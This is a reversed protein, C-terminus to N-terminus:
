KEMKGLIALPPEESTERVLPRSFPAMWLSKDEQRQCNRYVGNELQTHFGLVVKFLKDTEKVHGCWWGRM